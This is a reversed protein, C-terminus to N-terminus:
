LFRDRNTAVVASATSCKTQGFFKRSMVSNLSEASQQQFHFLDGYIRTLLGTHVIMHVYNPVEALKFVKCFLAIFYSGKQDISDVDTARLTDYYALFARSCAAVGVADSIGCRRLVDDCTFVNQFMVKRKAVTLKSFKPLSTDGGDKLQSEKVGCVELFLVIGKKSMLTVARSFIADSVRLFLHMVDIIIGHFLEASILPENKYGPDGPKLVSLQVVGEQVVYRPSCKRDVGCKAWREKSCRCYICVDRANASKFGLTIYLTKLDAVLFFQIGREKVREDTMARAAVQWGGSSEMSDYSEHEKFSFFPVINAVKQTGDVLSFSMTVANEKGLNHGDSSVQRCVLM